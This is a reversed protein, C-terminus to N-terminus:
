WEEEKDEPKITFRLTYVAGYDCTDCGSRYQSDENINTTGFFESLAILKKLSLGMEARSEVEVHIFINSPYKAYVAASSRHVDIKPAEYFDYKSKFLRAFEKKIETDTREIM